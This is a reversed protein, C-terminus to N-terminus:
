VPKLPVWQKFHADWKCEMDHEAWEGDEDDSAEILDLDGDRRKLLKNLFLSREYSDVRAHSHFGAENHLEYIDAAETPKVRFIATKVHPQYVAVGKATRCRVHHVKYGADFNPSSRSHDPLAFMLQSQLHVRGDLTTKLMQQLLTWKDEFELVVPRGEYYFVDDMLFCRRNQFQFLTGYLVTGLALSSAFAACVPYVVHPNEVVFCINKTNHYTIWVYVRKGAPHATYFAGEKEDYPVNKPLTVPPFRALVATYNMQSKFSERKIKKINLSKKQYPYLHLFVPM